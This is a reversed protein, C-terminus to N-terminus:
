CTSRGRAHGCARPRHSMRVTEDKLTLVLELSLGPFSFTENLMPTESTMNGGASSRPPRDRGVAEFLILRRAIRAVPRRVARVAKTGIRGATM